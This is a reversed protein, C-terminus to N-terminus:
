ISEIHICYIYIYRYHIHQIYIYLQFHFMLKSAFSSEARIQRPGGGVRGEDVSLCMMM